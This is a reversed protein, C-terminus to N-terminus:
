SRDYKSWLLHDLIICKVMSNVVETARILICPDHRGKKAVDKISSTPKMLVNISIKEGTSIGGRIGAYSNQECHFKTGPLSIPFNDEIFNVGVVAGISMLGMALDSKLKAFVPQGLSKPANNIVVRLIGGYSEGDLKAKQLVELLKSNQAPSPLRTEYEDIKDASLHDENGQFIIGAVEKVYSFIEIDKKFQQYCMQAIAGAIVRSVTERGSSRGGGRYDSIGFKEKWVDDAHGVRPNNKIKQYDKSQADANKVIVAIPTGLTKGEFVGSLIEYKDGEKRESTVSSIGPMRRDLSKRLIDESFDVGSPCGDIVVGLAVGHSEGFTTVVFNRGFSNAGM